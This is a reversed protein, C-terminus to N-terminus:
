RACLTIGRSRLGGFLVGSAVFDGRTDGMSDREDLDFRFLKRSGEIFNADAKVIIGLPKHRCGSVGGSANADGAYEM